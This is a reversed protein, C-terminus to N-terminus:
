ARPEADALALLERNVAEEHAQADVRAKAPSWRGKLLWICPLFLLQGAFCIWWWRQWQGPADNAAQQVLPGQSQLYTLQAVVKPDRLGPGYTSLFTLDAVPVTALAGLQAAATQVPKANSNLFLLDAKPVQSLAQLKAIAAAPDIKRGVAIEGVAKAQAAADTPNLFLTTTTTTDLTAATILQDKYQTGLSITRAVDAVPTGSIEALAQAQTTPDTPNSQLAATTAPTLLAATALQSKYQGALSQAKTVISPDAAVAKVTANQPASLSHDAGAAAARVQAGKDVLIGSAPIAVILGLLGVVVVSRLTAGWVALGTAIGAPSHREVTETFAAMWTAFAVASGISILLIIWVFHSYGTSSDGTAIAFLGVGIASVVGGVVMFPKRVRLRDSLAGGVILAVAQAVWYWNALANARAETYGFATAYFVVFLGVATYYFLLFVSIGLAPVIIDRRLMQRWHSKSAEVLDIGRARAEVLTRERLSIMLQDRLQPALERLGIFAVLFVLLGVAGCVRFQFQWDPHSDLTHSSVETVVLSGIVPGMTWFGMASARGLQPSFDRILAPTAVLIMGEVLSVLGFLVLYTLKGHANPLGFLILAGTIALGYVVFNARGFRDALGAAVSALAGLANGIVSVMIFYTLSMHLNASILTAVSGQVYFEYYLVVTALVVIVLYLIRRPGDPYRDLQRGWIGGNAHLTTPTSDPLTQSSMKTREPQHPNPASLSPNIGAYM